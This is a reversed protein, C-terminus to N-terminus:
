SMETYKVAGNAAMKKTASLKGGGSRVRLIGGARGQM